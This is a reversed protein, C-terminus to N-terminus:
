LDGSDDGREAPPISKEFAIIASKIELLIEAAVGDLRDSGLSFTTASEKRVSDRFELPEYLLFAIENYNKESASENMIKSREHVAEAMEYFLYYAKVVDADLASFYNRTRADIKKIADHLGGDLDKMEECCSLLLTQDDKSLFFDKLEIYLYTWAGFLLALILMALALYGPQFFALPTAICLALLFLSKSVPYLRRLFSKQARFIRDLEKQRFSNLNEPKRFKKKPEEQGQVLAHLRELNM